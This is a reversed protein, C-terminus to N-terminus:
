VGKRELDLLLSQLSDEVSSRFDASGLSCSAIVEDGKSLRIVAFGNENSFSVTLGKKLAKELLDRM